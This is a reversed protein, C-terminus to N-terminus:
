MEVWTGHLNLFSLITVLSRTRRGFFRPNCGGSQSQPEGLKRDSPIRPWPGLLYLPRPTFRIVCGDLTSILLTQLQVEAARYTKMAHHKILCLSLNEIVWTGLWSQTNSAYVYTKV